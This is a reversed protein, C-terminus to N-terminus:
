PPRVPTGAKRELQCSSLDYVNMLATWMIATCSGQSAM